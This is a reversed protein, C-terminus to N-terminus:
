VNVTLPPTHRGVIKRLTDAHERAEAARETLEKRVALKDPEEPVHMALHQILLAREQLARVANWLALETGDAIAALLSDASYAHGTHCRFRILEPDNVRLLVGHCEPCAFSSPSTVQELGAALANREKAIEVEVELTKPPASPAREEAPLAVIRGVLAGLEHVPVCHDVRTAHLASRPMSPFLADAPDQVITIGGLQKVTRLGASGDDLHGSLVIAVVAPGYVQAASRFLPDIAPRFRNEKPGKTVLVRRPEVVLHHDPPAVYIHGDRLRDGDTATTAPLAGASTLIAHLFGPSESAMHLVVCIPAAFDRPLQAVFTKLAETGGASAGVVVLRKIAM